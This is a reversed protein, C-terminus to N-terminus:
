QIQKVIFMIGTWTDTNAVNFTCTVTQNAAWNLGTVAVSFSNLISGVGPAVGWSGATTAGTRLVESELSISQSATTGSVGTVVQVGNVFLALTTNATGSAHVLAARINIGKSNTDITNAPLTYTYIVQASSNGTLPGVSGQANLVLITNGTTAGTFNKNLLSDTTARGILTDTSTPLSLDGGNNLKALALKGSADTGVGTGLAFSAAGVRVLAGDLSAGFGWKYGAGSSNIVRVDTTEIVFALAGLTTFGITDTAQKYMGTNTEGIFGFSPNTATGSPALFSGNLISLNGVSISQSSLPNQLVPNSLLISLTTPVATNLNFSNGTILVSEAGWILGGGPAVVSITYTLNGPSLEDSFWLKYNAPISGTNDLTTFVLQPAIQASGIAVADQPLKFWVKAGIAATGDAYQWTGSVNKV